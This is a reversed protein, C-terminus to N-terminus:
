VINYGKDCLKIEMISTVIAYNKANRSSIECFIARVVQLVKIIQLCSAVGHQVFYTEKKALGM